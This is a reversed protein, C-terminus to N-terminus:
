GDSSVTRMRSGVQQEESNNVFGGNSVSHNELYKLTNYQYDLQTVVETGKKDFRLKAGILRGRETNGEDRPTIIYCAAAHQAMKKCNQADTETYKGWIGKKSCQDAALQQMVLFACNHKKAIHQARLMLRELAQHTSNAEGQSEMEEALPGAWDLIILDHMRGTDTHYMNLSAEVQAMTPTDPFDYFRCYERVDKLRQLQADNFRDGSVRRPDNSAAIWEDVRIDTVAAFVRSKSESAQNIDEETAFFGVSKGMATLAGILEYALVTKGGSTPALCLSCFGLYIGRGGHLQDLVTGTLLRATSEEQYDDEEVPIDLRDLVGFPDSFPKEEMAMRRKSINGLISEALQDWDGTAKAEYYLKEAEFADVYEERICTAIEDVDPQPPVACASMAKVAEAATTGVDEDYVRDGFHKVSVALSEAVPVEGTEAILHLMREWILCQWDLAGAREMHSVELWTALKKAYAPNQVSTILLLDFSRTTLDISEM